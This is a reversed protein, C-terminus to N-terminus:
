NAKLIVFTKINFEMTLDNTTVKKDAIRKQLKNPHADVFQGAIKASFVSYSSHTASSFAFDPAV